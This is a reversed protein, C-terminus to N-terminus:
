IEQELGFESPDCGEENELMQELLETLDSYFPPQPPWSV